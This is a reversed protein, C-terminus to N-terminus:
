RIGQSCIIVFWTSHFHTVTHVSWRSTSSLLIRSSCSCLYFSVPRPRKPPTRRVHAQLSHRVRLRQTGQHFSWSAQRPYRHRLFLRGHEPAQSALSGGHKPEPQFFLGDCISTEHSSFELLDWSTPEEFALFYTMERLHHAVNKIKDYFKNKM